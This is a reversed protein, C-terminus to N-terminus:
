TWYPTQDKHTYGEMVKEYDSIVKNYYDVQKPKLKGNQVLELFRGKLSVFDSQANDKYNNSKNMELSTIIADLEKNKKSFIM